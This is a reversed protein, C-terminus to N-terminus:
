EQSSMDGATTHADPGDGPREDGDVGIETNDPDPSSM